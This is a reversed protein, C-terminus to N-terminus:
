ANLRTTFFAKMAEHTIIAHSLANAEMGKRADLWPSEDHSAAELQTASFGGYVSLVDEVHTIEETPLAIDGQPVDISNWRYHRYAYFANPVVPGHVWAEITEYFAPRDHIALSWGQIYYLLKQLKLNSIPGSSKQLIAKSVEKVSATAMIM